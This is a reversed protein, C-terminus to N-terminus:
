QLLCHKSVDLDAHLPNKLAYLCILLESCAVNRLNRCQLLSCWSLQSLLPKDKVLLPTSTALSAQPLFLAELLHAQTSPLCRGLVYTAKTVSIALNPTGHVTMNQCESGSWVYYIGLLRQQYSRHTTIYCPSQGCTRMYICALPM